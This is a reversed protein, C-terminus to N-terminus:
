SVIPRVDDARTRTVARRAPPKSPTDGLSSRPLDSGRRVIATEDVAGTKPGSVMDTDVAFTTVPVNV